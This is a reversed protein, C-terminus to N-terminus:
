KKLKKPREPAELEGLNDIKGALREYRHRVRESSIKAHNVHSTLTGLEDGFKMSEQQIAKLGQLIKKSAEEIKAGELGVMIIKLFYYFSNPSVFYVKKDYGHNLLESHKVTIEYYVPESPVYMLAFDVTGEQPLIYKKSIDDIHKKIARVFERRCGEEEEPRAQSMRRFDEVPFKSDIPILGQKTKIIADVREGEQFQYQLQFSSKPLVQELLDRLIQEGINGRLKPSRLFDQFDKMQHGIEQVKGLEKSVQNFGTKIVELDKKLFSLALDDQKREKLSKIEKRLM